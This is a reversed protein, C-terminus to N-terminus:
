DKKEQRVRRLSEARRRMKSEIWDKEEQRDRRQSEARRRM